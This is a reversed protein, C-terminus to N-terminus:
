PNCHCSSTDLLRRFAEGRKAHMEVLTKICPDQLAPNGRAKMERQFTEDMYIYRYGASHAQCPSALTETPMSQSRGFVLEGRLPQPDYVADLRNWYTSFMQADLGTLGPPFVTQTFAMMAIAFVSLGGVISVLGLSAAGAKLAQSRHSVWVWVLPLGWYISNFSLLNSISPISIAVAPIALLIVLTILSGAILLGPFWRNSRLSKLLMYVLLPLIALLPISQILVGALNIQDL